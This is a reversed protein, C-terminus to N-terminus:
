RYASPSWRPAPSMAVSGSWSRESFPSPPSAPTCPSSAAAPWTTRRRRMWLRSRRCPSPRRVADRDWRLGIPSPRGSWNMSRGPTAMTGSCTPARPMACWYDAASSTAAWATPSASWCAKYHQLRRPRGPTWGTVSFGFSGDLNPSCACVFQSGTPTKPDSRFPCPSRRYRISCPRTFSTNM